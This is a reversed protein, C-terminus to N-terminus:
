MIQMIIYPHEFEDFNLAAAQCGFVILPIVQNDNSPKENQTREFRAIDDYKSMRNVTCHDFADLADVGLGPFDKHDARVGFAGIAAM